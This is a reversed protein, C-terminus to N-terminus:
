QSKTERKPEEPQSAAKAEPKDKGKLLADVGKELFTLYDAISWAVRQGNTALDATLQYNQAPGCAILPTTGGYLSVFRRNCPYTPDPMLWEDGPNVLTGFAILMAGSAGATVAIRTSPVDLGYHRRYHASIAERLPAIGLAVTYHTDGRRIAADAADMVAPPAAFDPEGVNIAIISRGQRALEYAERAIEMAHFSEIDDMRRAIPLPIAPLTPANM